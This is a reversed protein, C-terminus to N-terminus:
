NSFRSALYRSSVYINSFKNSGYDSSSYSNNAFVSAFTKSYNSNNSLQISGIKYLIINNFRNGGKSVTGAFGGSTAPLERGQAIIHGINNIAINNYTSKSTRGVFGGAEGGNYSYIQGINNLTINNFNSGISTAAFGGSDGSSSADVRQINDIIINDFKSGGAYGVLGGSGAGVRKITEIAINNFTSNSAYGVLGGGYSDYYRSSVDGVNNIAINNITAGNAYGVLGGIHANYQGDISKINNVTINEIKSLYAEGVLGGVKGTTTNDRNFLASINKNNFDLNINKLIAKSGTTVFIGANRSSKTSAIIQMNKLTYGQGDFVKQFDVIMAHNATVGNLSAKDVLNRGGFDINDVLRFEEVKKTDGINYNWGRVFHLWETFNESESGMNGITIIAKLNKLDATNQTGKYEVGNLKVPNKAITYGSEAFDIMKNQTYVNKATIDASPAKFEANLGLYIDNGVLHTKSDSTSGIQGQVDIKNGILLINNANLNGMNVVEGQKNPKFVPSFTLGDSFNKINAFSSLEKTDMSSTSAVFRNANIVGTKTIIVGNPNILFVNNGSANLLGAITSKNTGQAINLYNKNSGNFNVTEGHNINFGGGWQIVSSVKNGHINMTNGNVSISGSTGHTFKGGSPLAMLPSFLLSATISSLLVHKAIKRTKQM